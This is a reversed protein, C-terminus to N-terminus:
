RAHSTEMAQTVVRVNEELQDQNLLGRAIPLVWKTKPNVLFVAPVGGEPNLNKLIGNDKRPSPFEPIGEGDASIALVEFGYAQAFAKVVPAMEHCYPCDKSFVFFLGYTKSLARMRQRHRAEQREQGIEQSRPNQITPGFPQKMAAMATWLRQFREADNYTQADLRQLALVNEPTPELVARARVEDHHDQRVKLRDRATAPQSSPQTAGTEKSSPKPKPKLPTTRENYWLWGPTRQDAAVCVGMMVAMGVLFYQNFGM